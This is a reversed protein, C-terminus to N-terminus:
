LWRSYLARPPALKELEKEIARHIKVRIWLRRNREARSMEEAFRAKVKRRVRDMAEQRIGDGGGAILHGEGRKIDM